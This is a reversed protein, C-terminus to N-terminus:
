ARRGLYAQMVESNGAIEDFTGTTVVQGADMVIIRDCVHRVLEMDHEIIFFTAGDDRLKGIADLIIRRINLHVGATVEDLLVLSAGRMM